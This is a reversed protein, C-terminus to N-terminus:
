CPACASRRVANLGRGPACDLGAIAVIIAGSPDRPADTLREPPDALATEIGRYYQTQIQWRKKVYAARGAYALWVGCERGSGDYVPLTETVAEFSRLGQALAIHALLWACVAKLAAALVGDRDHFLHTIAAPHSGPRGPSVPLTHGKWGTSALRISLLAPVLAAADRVISQHPGLSLFIRLRPL